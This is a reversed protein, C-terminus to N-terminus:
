KISTNLTMKEIYITKNEPDSGLTGEYTGVGKRYYTVISDHLSGGAGKVEFPRPQGQKEYFEDWLQKGTKLESMRNLNADYSALYEDAGRWFSPELLALWVRQSDPSPYDVDDVYWGEPIAARFQNRREETQFRHDTKHLVASRNHELYYLHDKKGFAASIDFAQSFLITAPVTLIVIGIVHFYKKVLLRFILSIILAVTLVSFPYLFIFFLTENYVLTHVNEMFIWFTVVQTLAAGAFNVFLIWATRKKNKM